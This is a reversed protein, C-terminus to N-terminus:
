PQYAYDPHLANFRELHTQAERREGAAILEQIYAYWAAPDAQEVPVRQAAAGRENQIPLYLSAAPAGPTTPRDILMGLLIGAVLSAALSAPMFWTRTRVRAAGTRAREQALARAAALVAADHAASTSVPHSQLAKRLREEAGEAGPPEPRSM